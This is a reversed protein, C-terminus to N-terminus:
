KCVEGLESLVVENNGLKDIVFEKFKLLHDMSGLEISSSDGSSEVPQLYYCTKFTLVKPNGELKERVTDKFEENCKISIVANDKLKDLVSLEKTTTIDFKYFNIAYPNEIFELELTDTDLIAIHHEYKTADESFNQGCIVGLNLIKKTVWSGNHLHGNIYLDCNSEIDDIAYGTKSLFPGMQFDKIDNHSFVVLRKSNDRDKCIEQLPVRNDETVYPLYLFETHGDIDLFRVNNEVSGVNHLAQTSNYVLSAIGSDHNGVIFNRSLCKENWLIKSLATISEADLDPKDFFDGLFIEKECGHEKSIKEVWNLSNILLELRTSFEDGRSRLISSYTSWHVDGVILVKM